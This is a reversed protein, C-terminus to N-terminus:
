LLIHHRLSSTYIRTTSFLFRTCPIHLHLMFHFYIFVTRCYFIYMGPISHDMVPGMYQYSNEIDDHYWDPHSMYGEVTLNATKCDTGSLNVEEFVLFFGQVQSNGMRGGGITIDCNLNAPSFYFAIEGHKDSNPITQGCNKEM